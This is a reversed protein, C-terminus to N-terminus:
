RRECNVEAEQLAIREDDDVSLHYKQKVAIVTKVYWCVNIDPLWDAADKDRKLTRNVHEGGVTLNLPDSAFVSWQDPQSCLGSDHAESRAVIHEIDMDQLFRFSIGPMYPSPFTNNLKGKKDVEWGLREVIKRDANAPYRYSKASYPSCRQEPEVTLGQWTEGIAIVPLLLFAYLILRM